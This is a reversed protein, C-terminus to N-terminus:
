FPKLKKAKSRLAFQYFFALAEIPLTAKLLRLFVSVLYLLFSFNGAKFGETLFLIEEALYEKSQRRRVNARVDVLTAEINTIKGGCALFRSIFDWDEIYRYNKYGGISAFLAKSFMITVHNVPSRLPSIAIIKNMLSPVKRVVGQDGPVVRFEEVWGGVLDTEKEQFVRLQNELRNVRSIDDADMIAILESKALYVLKNRAAGRGLNVPSFIVKIYDINSDLQHLYTSIQPDVPGDRLILFEDPQYTQKIISECAAKVWCLRDGKWVSM